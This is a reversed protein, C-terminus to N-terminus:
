GSFSNGSVRARNLLSRLATNRLLMNKTEEGDVGQVTVEAVLQSHEMTDRIADTSAALGMDAKVVHAAVPTCPLPHLKIRSVKGLFYKGTKIESRMEDENQYFVFYDDKYAEM